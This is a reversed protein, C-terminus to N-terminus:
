IEWFGEPLSVAITKRERDLATILAAPILTEKGKYNVALLVNATRSDIDSVTGAKGTNSDTVTYGTLDKWEPVAEGNSPLMESPVYAPKGTFLKAKDKSDIGALEVLVATNNKQRCSEIFFPVPIGEMDCVLYPDDASIDAIEYDTLLSIEGKIGHPKAFHGIKILDEKKLM